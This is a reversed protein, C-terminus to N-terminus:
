DVKFQEVSAQLKQSVQATAQMAQAVQRSAQSRQESTQSVQQMVTTVSQAAEAQTTTTTSIERMLQDIERSRQLVETLQLKTQEVQQTSDVVQTTGKEMAEVLEQTEAQISAVIKAIEQTAAASQEALAGVQEAVATFGQGLEGARAAEVSANISLLNTKLALEDILSVVQSIKQASEGLRKMKKTTDGITTRLGLISSVTQDMAQNGAQVTAHASNAITSAEEANHAVAEIAHSMSQVSGLAQQIEKADLIAQDALDRISKENHTLSQNVQGSSNRVQIAIDQLNEIVANFLDAVIGIEGEMLQARATLDGDAAGEIREMMTFLQMELDQRRRQQEEVAAMQAEISALSGLAAGLVEAEQKLYQIEWDQWDHTQDCHHAVLLGFLDGAIVIPVVLNAKIELREMLQQHDPHFGAHLVDATPVVRGQKYAEILQDPICPDNIADGLATPWGPLVAEGAIYGSKDPKFRYVVVRDAWLTTRLSQLYGNLPTQMADDHKAQAIATLLQQQEARIAQQELSALSSMAVSLQEAEGQLLQVETPQWDHTQGCHHAVLLGFLEGATVIPVVLNAKIQLREMLQQHDPHFGAHMVDATPVVRGQKYAEILNQPICPDSISDGLATPWGPLVSEGAIYGSMDPKFRYVVMRDVELQARVDELYQNLPAELATDEKAQSIAALLQVRRTEQQQRTLLTKGQQVLSNFTGALQRTESTGAADATVDLDGAAMQNAADSLRNIPASIQRSLYLVMAIAAASLLGGIVLFKWLIENGVARMEAGDMSAIAVWPVDPIATMAYYRGGVAFLAAAIDSGAEGFREVRLDKLNHTQQLAAAIDAPPLDSGAVTEKFQTAIQALTEGGVIPQDALDRGQTTVLQGSNDVGLSAVVQQAFPDVIQVQKSGSLTTQLVEILRENLGNLSAGSQVVGAFESTEMDSIAKALTLVYADASEDYVPSELFVGDERASQWWPEDSQVFDSTLNTAAVNFGDKNTVFMEKLGQQAAINQLYTNLTDNPQLLKRAGYYNELSETPIQTLKKAAVEADASQLTQQVLPNVSLLEANTTLEDVFNASLQGAIVAEEKLITEEDQQVKRETIQYNVASIVALPLLTTPLLTLLLRSRLTSLPQSKARKKDPKRHPQNSDPKPDPAQGSHRSKGKLPKLSPPPPVPRGVGSKPSKSYPFPQATTM